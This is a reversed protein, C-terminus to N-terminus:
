EGSTGHAAARLIQDTREERDRRIMEVASPRNPDLPHERAVREALMSLRDLAAVKRKVRQERSEELRDADEVSVLVAMPRHDREILIREGASASDLLEGLHKRVDIATVIRM